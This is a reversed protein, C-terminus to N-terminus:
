KSVKVSAPRIVRGNLQYGKQLVSVVTNPEQGAVEEISLAQHLNPDLRDKINTVIEQIKNGEFVRNLEKLTLEVGMKITAVNETNDKLAMELYDKVVLLDTAFKSICYERTKKLEEQYRKQTNSLEAQALLYQNKLEAIEENLKHFKDISQDDEADASTTEAQANIEDQSVAQSAIDQFEDQSQEADFRDDKSELNDAM